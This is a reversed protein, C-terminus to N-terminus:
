HATTIWEGSGDDYIEKKWVPSENKYANITEELAAFAEKRHISSLVILVIVEGIEIRGTLHVLRMGLLGYKKGIRRAIKQMSEQGKETWSEVEMAVVKKEASDSISRVLGSFTTIAGREEDFGMQNILDTLTISNKPLIDGDYKEDM